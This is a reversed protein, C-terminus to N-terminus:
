ADRRYLDEARRLASYVGPGHGVWSGTSMTHTITCAVLHQLHNYHFTVICGDAVLDNMIAVHMQSEKKDTIM